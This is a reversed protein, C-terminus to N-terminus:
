PQQGRQVGPSVSVRPPTRAPMWGRGAGIALATFAGSERVVPHITYTHAWRPRGRRGDREPYSFGM